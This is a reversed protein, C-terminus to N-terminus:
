RLVDCTFNSDLPHGSSGKQVAIGYEDSHTHVHLAAKFCSPNIGERHGNASWFWQPLPGSPATSLYYGMALPQQLLQLSAEDNQLEVMQHPTPHAQGSMVSECGAPKNVDLDIGGMGGGSAEHAKPSANPSGPILDWMDMEGGIDGMVTDFDIDDDLNDALDMGGAGGHDHASQAVQAQATTSTPFVLIHSTSADRPTDLPCQSSQREEEKVIDTFIHVTPHSELSVVCASVICPIEANSLAACLECSLRLQKNTNVLNRKSLLSVWGKLEGHGLRGFRGVILRWPLTTRGVVRLIFDWLKALGIKRASAKKRRNRNPVEINITCTELMAGSADTCSAVLWRQDSSLCYACLLSSSQTNRDGHWLSLTPNMM